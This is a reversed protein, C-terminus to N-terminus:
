TRRYYFIVAGGAGATGSGIQDIDITIIANAAIATDTLTPQTTATESSTESVEIEIKNTDMITDVGDNVDIIISSGTPATIVNGSIDTLTCAFNPWTFTYKATGTTFATTLDSFPVIMFDAYTNLNASGAWTSLATNEVNNLSLDTKTETYSRGEITDADTFKAFDNAVPTGSTDVTGSNATAGDAVNIMTRVQTATLEAVIQGAGAINGLIRQDAVVNQMKAYTVADNAITLETAGTVEGTHTANTVKATNLDIATRNEQLAAEVETATIIGAGDAIPIDAASVQGAGTGWDIMTDKVKDAGITLETAGTVDGTHTANTVKANNTATDSEITDLDVAQTVSIHGVKTKETATYVKNTSGDTHNDCNLVNAITLGGDQILKGTTTDFTAIRDDVASAPGVVDGSGAGAAAWKMGGSKTDDATLVYDNTPAEDLKLNAEDIVNDAVTLATAGTVEGSHTANTTKATNLNIATRNEALAGEIDTATILANSDVIPINSAVLTGGGADNAHTHTANTFDAITPTTLTKNTLTQEATLGTLQESVGAPDYTAALMDGTGSVTAWKTGTPQTDDAVFVQGNAGVSLNDYTGSGTGVILDGKAEIENSLEVVGSTLSLNVTIATSGVTISTSNSSGTAERKFILDGASVTTTSGSLTMTLAYWFIRPNQTTDTDSFTVSASNSSKTFAADLKTITADEDADSEEAKVLLEFTYSEIDFADGASDLFTFTLTEDDGITMELNTNKPM